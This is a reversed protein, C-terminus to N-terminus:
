EEKKQFQKAGRKRAEIRAEGNFKENIEEIRQKLASGEVFKVKYKAWREMLPLTFKGFGRIEVEFGKDVLNTTLIEFLADAITKLEYESYEKKTQNRLTDQLQRILIKQSIKKYDKKKM